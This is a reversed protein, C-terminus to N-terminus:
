GNNFIPKRTAIHLGLLWAGPNIFTHGNYPRSRRSQSCGMGQILSPVRNNDIFRILIGATHQAVANWIEFQFFPYNFSPNVQHLLLPDDKFGSNLDANINRGVVELFSKIGNQKGASSTSRSIQISFPTVQVANFKGHVEQRLLVHSISFFIDRM